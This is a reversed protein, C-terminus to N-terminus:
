SRAGQDTRACSVAWSLRPPRVAQPWGTRLRDCPWQHELPGTMTTTPKHTAQGLQCHNNNRPELLSDGLRELNNGQITAARASVVRVVSQHRSTLLYSARLSLYFPRSSAADSKNKLDKNHRKESCLSESVQFRSSDSSSKPPPRALNCVTKLKGLRM